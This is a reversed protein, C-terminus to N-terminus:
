RGINSPNGTVLPTNSKRDSYPILVSVALKIM